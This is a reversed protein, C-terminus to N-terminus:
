PDWHTMSFPGDLNPLNSGDDNGVQQEILRNLKANMDLLLEDREGAKLPTQRDGLAKNYAELGDECALNYKELPDNDLDFLEVENNDYIEQLQMKQTDKSNRGPMNHHKNSFYRSYKYRGDFVSRIAGKKTELDIVGEFGEYTGGHTNLHQQVSQAFEGDIISYMNYCYLVGDPHLKEVTKGNSINKLLPSLDEGCLDYGQLKQTIDLHANSGPAAQCAWNVLTPALDLHSTVEHCQRFLDEPNTSNYEPHHIILPVHTQEEYATNGKGSLGHAGGLEGHDATMVIITNEMLGLEDLEDLIGEIVEDTERICNFYYDQLRQWRAEDYRPDDPDNSIVGTLASKVVNWDKHTEPRGPKEIKENLTNPLDIETWRKRFAKSPPAPAIPSITKPKAQSWNQSVQDGLSNQIKLERPEEPADTNFFMADHPNVLNVAKFWPQGKANLPQGKMRLWRQTQAGITEDNLHGGWTTGIIDGVGVYDKFGYEEMVKTLHKTPLNDYGTHEELALALHWKGKYASYYGAEDMMDGLTPIHTSFDNSWYYELNDFMGTRQIHQGSYIVSRSPTCVATNIHHKTFTIGRKQLRKRAPLQDYLSAHTDPDLYREQDTLIFLVNYPKKSM